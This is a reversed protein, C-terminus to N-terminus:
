FSLFLGGPMTMIVEPPKQAELPWAVEQFTLSHGKDSKGNNLPCYGGNGLYNPCSTQGFILDGQDQQVSADVHRTFLGFRGGVLVYPGSHSAGFSTIVIYYNGETLYIPLGSCLSNSM